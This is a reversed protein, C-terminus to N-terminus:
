VLVIKLLLIVQSTSFVAEVPYSVRLLAEKQLIRARSKANQQPQLSLDVGTKIPVVEVPTSYAQFLERGLDGRIPLALIFSKPRTKIGLILPKPFM